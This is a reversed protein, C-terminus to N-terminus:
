EAGTLTQGVAVQRHLGTLSLRNPEVVVRQAVQRNERRSFVISVLDQPQLLRLKIREGHLFVPCDPPVDFVEVETGTFVILDRDLVKVSQM